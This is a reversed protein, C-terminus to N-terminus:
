LGGRTWLPALLVLPSLLTTNYIAHGMVESSLWGFLDVITAGAIVPLFGYLALIALLRLGDFFLGEWDNWDPWSFGGGRHIQEFYRYLYGLALLNLVPVYSLVGGILVNLAWRPEAFIRKCIEDFSVM